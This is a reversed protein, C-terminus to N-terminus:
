SARGRAPAAALLALAAAATRDAAGRSEAVFGAADTGAARTKEPAALRAALARSLGAADPVRELIGRAQGAAAVDRFNELHPGAVVAVGAAWAEIPNQGGKEVLSGGVFAVSAERYASALEGISDLVYVDPPRSEPPTSRSAPHSRRIVTLGRSKCLRVAADFREPRRPALLLLPRPSLAGVADLVLPDEGEATSGAAVIPRGAAATRLRAADPFLPPEPLDYKLNGTVLVREPPAGLDLARRADEASQMALLSLRGLTERMFGPVRRYRRHSKESIRGNVLAVPVHRREARELFLPWIETETLLVLGPRTEDLAREVAGALDFPFAFVAARGAFASAALERGAATTASVGAPLGPRARELAALLHRAVGVEGVSVAHIWIGGDLDPWPKWGLRGRVDGLRRGGALSRLLAYPGYAALATTALVRYLLM